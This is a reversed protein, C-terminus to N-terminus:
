EEEYYYSYDIGKMFIDRNNIDEILASNLLDFIPKSDVPSEKMASLYDDKDIKSWDICKQLRNKLLLDLWIRTSRGNGEMFPHAVNMEIYKDVIEDFTNDPMRNIDQLVQPLFDGNAFTFGGKSITKTRIKGAFPYLGEFLYAHIKQLAVAKGIEDEEILDTKYFDYAKKKSQEDIPDLLGKIWDQIAKKYKSPIIALLLKVGGENIVDSLYKKGDAAYLKLQGCFPSLEPNRVKVNNWYRRPSNPEILITIFDVASYWWLSNDNDWVARVPKNNFYRISHKIM